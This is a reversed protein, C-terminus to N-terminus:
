QVEISVVSGSTEGTERYNMAVKQKSWDCSFADAGLVLVHHSDNVQMKWSKGGAAITLVAAPPTSCDVAVITGKLFKIAGAVVMNRGTSPVDAAASDRGGTMEASPQANMQKMAAEMQEIQGVAASARMAVMQDNSKALARFIAMAHETNREQMYLDALNFYYGTNRPNLSIAKRASVLAGAVDGRRAEAFALQMHADAFDPDLAIATRLETTVFEFDSEGAQSGKMNSLLGSYYHVRADKSDLKAARRFYDGAEEFDRKQMYAYGMGRCAAANDPDSKLIEEFEAMAKEHYDRTHLHIDAMVAAANQSSLPKTIYGKTEIEAPTKMYYYRFEGSALYRRIEKEFDGVSMGFSQQIAEDVPVKKSLKLDFYQALKPILNRDYLYHVVMSSESYFVTRRDGSENYTSSNHQIRFLDTIKMLGEHQLIQYTLPPIKGVRAQHSDVEISSFYEAFGEEFWPDVEDTLTGNMLQHAYEHFVVNWPNDVSMDLMIFCRDKGGQFLGALQVPKGNWLPSVQRLEKSNRFAVIQLPVPINVNANTMLTAYVARMQEFRTAVERGRREGADTVVSFHPSTIEIWEPEGAFAAPSLVAAILLSLSAVLVWRFNM